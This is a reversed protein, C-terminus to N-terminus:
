IAISTKFREKLRHDHTVIILAAKYKKALGALLDAVVEANEDDLSSTPEDALLLKPENILARAISVRQQQGISLDNTSKNAFKELGLLFLLEKAKEQKKTKDTLWSALEINELVNLSAIFHSKQLILGVNQGRFHDLKKSSLQTIDTTDIFIEGSTPKLLGGLLHLLTTKGKGSAGTILIAQSADCYIDPFEFQTEPNYQFVIKNTRIM